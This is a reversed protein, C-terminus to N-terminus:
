DKGEEDLVSLTKKRVVEIIAALDKPDLGKVARLAKWAGKGLVTEMMWAVASMEGDQRIRELAELSVEAGVTVPITFEKGDITFLPEREEEAEPRSKIEIMPAEKM